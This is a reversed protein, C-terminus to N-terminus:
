VSKLSISITASGSVACGTPSVTIGRKMLENAVWTQGFAPQELAFAVIAKEIEDGIKEDRMQVEVM